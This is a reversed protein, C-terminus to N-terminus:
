PSLMSVGLEIDWRASQGAVEVDFTSGLDTRHYGAYKDSLMPREYIPVYGTSGASQPGISGLSWASILYRQSQASSLAAGNGTILSFSGLAGLQSVLQIKMYRLSLYRGRQASVLVSKTVVGAGPLLSVSYISVIDFTSQAAAQMPMTVIALVVALMGLQIQMWKWM